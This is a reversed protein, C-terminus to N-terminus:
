KNLVHCDTDVIIFTESFVESHYVLCSMGVGSEVSLM